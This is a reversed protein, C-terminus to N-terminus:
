INNAKLLHKKEFKTDIGLGKNRVENNVMGFKSVRYKWQLIINRNPKRVQLITDMTPRKKAEFKWCKMMLTEIHGPCDSPITPTLEGSGVKYLVHMPEKYDHFPVKRSLIEYVLMGYAWVDTYRSYPVHIDVVLEPAMYGHTGKQSSQAYSKEDLEKALGFDCLKLVNNDFLLCNNAKVDRHLFNKAHLYQLALASERMWKHQLEQPLSNKEAALFHHLSGHKAYELVIIKTRSIKCFGLLLVINPHNLRSMIEAEEDTISKETRLITKAAAENYGNHQHKFTVRNVIGGGGEGIQEHFELNDYDLQAFPSEQIEQLGLFFFFFFFFLSSTSM